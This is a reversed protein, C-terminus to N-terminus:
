SIVSSDVFTSKMVVKELLGLLSTSQMIDFISVQAGARLALLNRLEVAVLSDVGLEVVSSSPSVEAADLMFIGALKQVLTSAVIDVADAVSTAATM